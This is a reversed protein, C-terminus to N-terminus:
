CLIQHVDSKCICSTCQSNYALSQLLLLLKFTKFKLIYKIFLEESWAHWANFIYSRQKNLAKTWIADRHIKIIMEQFQTTSSWAHHYYDTSTRCM